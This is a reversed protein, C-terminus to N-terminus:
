ASESRPIRARAVFRDGITDTELVGGVTALRDRMGAVGAGSGATGGDGTANVVEVVLDASRWSRLVRVPGGARGHRLANTLMEQLVRRAVLATAADSPGPEGETVDVVEVGASRVQALVADLDTAEGRREADTRELVDRVEVLSTRATAAITGVVERMREPEDLFRVSDAQAIIVALSHGVVDHVDRAIATRIQEVDAQEQAREARGEAQRRQVAEGRRAALTRASFGATWSLGLLVVPLILVILVPAASSSPDTVDGTFSLTVRAFGALALYAGAVLGGVLSSVGSLVLELRTGYAAAAFVVMAAGVEVISPPEGGTMQLLATLWALGIALSPSWRRVAVALAATAVVPASAQLASVTPVAAAILLLVAAVVDFVLQRQTARGRLWPLRALPSPSAPDDPGGPERADSARDRPARALSM